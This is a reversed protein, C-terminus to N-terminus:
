AVTMLRDMSREFKHVEAEGVKKSVKNRELAYHSNFFGLLAVRADNTKQPFDRLAKTNDVGVLQIASILCLRLGALTEVEPTVRLGQIWYKNLVARSAQVVESEIIVYRKVPVAVPWTSNSSDMIFSPNQLLLEQAKTVFLLCAGEIRGMRRTHDVRLGQLYYEASPFAPFGKLTVREAVAM